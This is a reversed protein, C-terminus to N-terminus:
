PPDVTGALAAILAVRTRIGSKDFIARVHTKVTNPSIFLTRGISSTTLGRQILLLVETERETLNWEVPIAGKTVQSHALLLPLISLGLVCYWLPYLRLGWGEVLFVDHAILPLALILLLGFRAAVPNDAKARPLGSFATALTYLALGACVLDEFLDGRPDWVGGIIFETFHQAVFTIGVVLIVANRRAPSRVGFAVHAFLPLALMVAYRGLVSELYNVTATAVHAPASVLEMLGLLMGALVLLSFALYLAVFGRATRDTSRRVTVVAGGLCAVGIVFTVFIYALLYPTTM